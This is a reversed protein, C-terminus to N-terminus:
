VTESVMSTAVTKRNDKTFPASIVLRGPWGVTDNLCYEPYIFKGSVSLQTM